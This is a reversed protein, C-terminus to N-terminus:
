EDNTLKEEIDTVIQLARERKGPNRIQEAIGKAQDLDGTLAIDAAIERLVSSADLSDQPSESEQGTRAEGIALDWMRQAEMLNRDRARSKAIRSRAEARQWGARVSAAFREAQDYRGIRLWYSLVGLYDAEDGSFELHDPILGVQIEDIRQNKRFDSRLFALGLYVAAGLAGLLLDSLTDEMGFQVHTGLYHDSLFEAFEWFVAVTCTLSFALLNRALTRLQGLQDAAVRSGRDFFFALALGGLFHLLPDLSRRHGFALALIAHLLVVALPAWAAERMLRYLVAAPRRNMVRVEEASSDM